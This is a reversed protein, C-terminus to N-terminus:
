RSETEHALRRLDARLQHAAYAIVLMSIGNFGGASLASILALQSLSCSSVDILKTGRSTYTGCRGM